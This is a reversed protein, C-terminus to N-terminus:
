LSARGSTPYLRLTELTEACADIWLWVGGVNFLDMYRFRIGGFLRIMEKLLDVGSVSTMTLGGRLPPAFLPTFTPGDMPLLHKHPWYRLKLDELHQFLGIFYLIEPRSGQPERLNLSRLTPLFNKFHRRIRPMFRHICLHDIELEQVNTLAFFHCLTRCDLRKPTFWRNGQLYGQRVQLNQVLPLLGLRHMHRLPYPWMFRKNSWQTTRVTLTRHLHLVVVIYWTSCTLSCALLSPTDYILHAIIIEVIEFPLRTTSSPRTASIKWRYVRSRIGRIAALSQHRVRKVLSETM